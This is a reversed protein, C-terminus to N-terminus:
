SISNQISLAIISAQKYCENMSTGTEIITCIPDGRNVIVGQPTRDATNSYQALNPAAGDRRSYVIMKVGPSLEPAKEPLIGHSARVHLTTMSLDGTAEILELTGQIRPNVEMLWIRAKEDVVYDFGVSGNLKLKKSISESVEAIRSVTEDALGSPYYNGCYAFGCNRGATPMGILQGQVSFTLALDGAGLVSCSIDVGRIYEQLVRPEYETDEPEGFSRIVDSSNLAFRIGSGGGSHTPRVLYPFNFEGSNKLAENPTNVIERKPFSLKLSAAIKALASFDRAKSMQNPSCGVLLGEKQLPGLADFYDDFGSGILVYDLKRKKTLYFLNEVLSEHLPVDLPQRQRAGPTPTLVAIWDDCCATLDDDGWYDSVYVNAGAKKASCAIPRANFGIVGVSKNKLPTSISVM